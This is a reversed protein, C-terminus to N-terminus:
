YLLLINNSVKKRPDIEGVNKALSKRWLCSSFCKKPLANPLHWDSAALPANTQCIECWMNKPLNWWCLKLCFAPSISHWNKQWVRQVPLKKCLSYLKTLNVGLTLKMLMKCAFKKYLFENQWSKRNVRLTCTVLFFLQRFSTRVFFFESSFM